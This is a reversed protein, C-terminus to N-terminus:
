LLENLLVTAYAVIIGSLIGVIFIILNKITLVLLKCIPIAIRKWLPKYASIGWPFLHITETDTQVIFDHKSLNEILRSIDLSTLGSDSSIKSLHVNNESDKNSILLGLFDNENKIM